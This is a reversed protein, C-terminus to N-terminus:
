THTTSLHIVRECVCVCVCVCVVCWVGCVVCVCVCVGCWVCVCVGDKPLNQIVDVAAQFRRQHDPPLEAMTPVPM